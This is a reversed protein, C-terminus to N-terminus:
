GPTWRDMLHALLLLWDFKSLLMKSHYSNKNQLSLKYKELSILCNMGTIGIPLWCLFDTSVVMLLNRAVKLDKERNARDIRNQNKTSHIERYVLYQGVGILLFTVSNFGIFISISYEWGSPKDRTLPLALCVGTKSYFEGKFYSHILLPMISIILSIVWITVMVAGALKPTLRIQGSPFKTVLIRDITILIMIMVSTESSLTAIFGAFQCWASYRWDDSHFIYNGRYHQDASAIIILYVGMLFDSVALNTVFIGYGLKFSKRDFIFRYVLSCANGLLAMASIIWILARLVENRMLDNCSSFEDKHPYCDEEALYSPRICCFLYTDSKILNVSQIGTFMDVSFSLIESGNLYLNSVFLLEFANNAVDHIVNKSLDLFELYLKTFSSKSILAIKLDTLRLENMAHLGSFANSEFTLMEFNGILVLNNLRSLNLFTNPGITELHNYSIDVTLLNTMYELPIETLNKLETRSLNLHILNHVNTENLVLFRTVNPSYSVDLWRTTPSLWSSTNGPFILNSCDAAYGSCNCM